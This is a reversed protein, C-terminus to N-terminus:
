GECCAVLGANLHKQIEVSLLHWGRRFENGDADKHKDGNKDGAYCRLAKHIAKPVAKRRFPQRM